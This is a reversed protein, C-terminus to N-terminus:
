AAIAQANVQAAVKAVRPAISRRQNLDQLLNAEYKGMDHDSILGFDSLIDMGGKVTELFKNWASIEPHLKGLSDFYLSQGVHRYGFERPAVRTVLDNNNIFRFTCGSYVSDFCTVFDQNGVRPSGFTYVGQVQNPASLRAAALTALAAGLSHGTIFLAQKQTRFTALKQLVEQWIENLGFSFGRHVEGYCDEILNIDADTMWDKLCRSETGRFALVILQDNGMMFAQTCNQEFFHFQTFNWTRALSAIAFRDDYALRASQALSLANTPSYAIASPEFAFM